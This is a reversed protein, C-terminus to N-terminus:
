ATDLWVHKRVFYEDPNALRNIFPPVGIGWIDHSIIFPTHAKDQIYIRIATPVYLSFLLDPANVRFVPGEQTIDHASPIFRALKGLALLAVTNTHQKIKIGSRKEEKLITHLM